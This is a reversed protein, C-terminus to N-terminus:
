RGARASEELRRLRSSICTLAEMWGGKEGNIYRDLADAAPAPPPSALSAAALDGVYKAQFNWLAVAKEEDHEVHAMGCRVCSVSFTQYTDHDSYECMEVTDLADRNVVCCSCRRLDTRTIERAREPKRERTLREVEADRATLRSKLSAIDDICQLGWLRLKEACQGEYSAQLFSGYDICSPREVRPAPVPPPNM